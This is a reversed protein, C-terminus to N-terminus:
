MLLRVTEQAVKVAEELGYVKGKVLFVGACWIGCDEHLWYECLEQPLVPPSYWDQVDAPSTASWLRKATPSSMSSGARRRSGRLSKQKPQAAQTLAWSRARMSCSSSDSDSFDDEDEKLGLGSFPAKTNPRYGEPYYPGHLDGLDVANASLGCLCCVLARQHQSHKAPRGLRLYSTSPVTPSIFAQQQQGKKPQTKVEEPHNILACLSPSSEQREVHIFPSFADLRPDRKDEKYNVYKLKIEPEKPSFISSTQSWRPKKRRRKPTRAPKTKATPSVKSGSKSKTKGQNNKPLNSQPLPPSFSPVKMEVSPEPQSLLEPEKKSSRLVASLKSKSKVTSIQPQHALEQNSRPFQPSKTLASSRSKMKNSPKSVFTSDKGSDAKFNSCKGNKVTVKQNVSFPIKVNVRRKSLGGSKKSTRSTVNPTTCPSASAKNNARIRGSIKYRSSNISMVIAELRTGRGSRAPLKREKLTTDLTKANGNIHFVVRNNELDDTLPELMAKWGHASQKTEDSDLSSSDHMVCCSSRTPRELGVEDKEPYSADASPSSSAQPLLFVDTVDDLSTASPSVPDELPNKYDKSLSCLDKADTSDSVEELGQKQSMIFLVDSSGREEDEERVPVFAEPSSESLAGSSSWGNCQGDELGNKKNEPFEHQENDQFPQEMFGDSSINGGNLGLPPEQAFSTGVDADPGSQAQSFPHFPESQSALNLPEEMQEQYDPNLTYSTESHRDDTDGHPHFSFKSIPSVTYLPMHQSLSSHTSFVHSRSMYSVTVTTHSLANDPQVQEGPQLTVDSSGTEYTTRSDPYWGPSKVMRLVDHPASALVHEEEKRTLDIVTPMSSTSVDQPQLDDLSGPPQEM